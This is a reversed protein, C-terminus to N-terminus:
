LLDVSGSVILLIKGLYQSQHLVLLGRALDVALIHIKFGGVSREAPLRPMTEGFAQFLRDRPEPSEVLMPEPMDTASIVTTKGYWLSDRVSERVRSSMLLWVSIGRATIKTLELEVSSEEIRM